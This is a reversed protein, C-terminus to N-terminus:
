DCRAVSDPPTTPVVRIMRWLLLSMIAVVACASGYYVRFHQDPSGLMLLIVSQGAFAIEQTGEFLSIYFANSDGFASATKSDEKRRGIETNRWWRSWSSIPQWLFRVSFAVLPVMWWSETGVALISITILCWIVILWDSRRFQSLVELSHRKREEPSDGNGFSFVFTALYRGISIALACYVLTAGFEHSRLLGAVDGVSFATLTATFFALLTCVGIAFAWLWDGTSLFIAVQERCKSIPLVIGTAGIREAQGNAWKRWKWAVWMGSASLCASILFPISAFVASFSNSRTAWGICTTGIIALFFDGLFGWRDDLLCCEAFAPDNGTIPAFDTGGQAAVCSLRYSDEFAGSFFSRGIEGVLAGSFATWVVGNPSPCWFAFTMLATGGFRFFKAAFVVLFDGRSGHRAALWGAILELPLSFFSPGGVVVIMTRILAQEIEVHHELHLCLVIGVYLPLQLIGRYAGQSFALFRVTWYIRRLSQRKIQSDMIRVM